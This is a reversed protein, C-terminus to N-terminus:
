LQHLRHRQLELRASCMGVRLNCPAERVLQFFTSAKYFYKRLLRPAIHEFLVCLNRSRSISFTSLRQLFGNRDWPRAGPILGKTKKKSGSDESISRKRKKAASPLTARPDKSTEEPTWLDMDKWQQLTSFYRNILNSKGHGSSPSSTGDTTAMHAASNLNYGPVLVRTPINSILWPFLWGRSHIPYCTALTAHLCADGLCIHHKHKRM